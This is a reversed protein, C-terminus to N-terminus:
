NSGSKVALRPSNSIISFRCWKTVYNKQLAASLETTQLSLPPGQDKFYDEMAQEFDDLATWDLLRAYLRGLPTDPDPLM